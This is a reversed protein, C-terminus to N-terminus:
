RLYSYAAYGLLACGVLQRGRETNRHREREKRLHIHFARLQGASLAGATAAHALPADAADQQPPHWRTRWRVAEEVAAKSLDRGMETYWQHAYTFSVVHRAGASADAAEDAATHAGGGWHTSGWHILRSDYLLADGVKGTGHVRGGGEACGGEPRRIYEDIAALASPPAVGEVRTHCVRGLFRACFDESHTAPCLATPGNAATVAQLPWQVNLAYTADGMALPTRLETLAEHAAPDADAAAALLASADHPGESAVSLPAADTHPQQAGTRPGVMIHAAQEVAVGMHTSKRDAGLLELVLPALLPADVVSSANFPPAFPLDVMARGAEGQWPRPARGGLTAPLLARAWALWASRQEGASTNAVPASRRLPALLPTDPNTRLFKSLADRVALLADPDMADVIKVFGCRRMSRLAAERAKSGLAGSAREASTAYVTHHHVDTCWNVAEGHSVTPDTALVTTALLAFGCARMIM